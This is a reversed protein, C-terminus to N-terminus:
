TLTITHIDADYLKVATGTATAAKSLTLTTGSGPDATIYVGPALGTGKIRHGIRWTSINTVNQIINSGSTVDGTSPRHYRSWWQVVLNLTPSSSNQEVFSRPLAGLTVVGTSADINTIVGIVVNKASFTNAGNPNEFYGIADTAIIADLPKLMSVDALSFTATYGTHNITVSISGLYIQNVAQPIVRQVLPSDGTTFQITQGSCTYFKDVGTEDSAIVRESIFNNGQNSGSHGGGSGGADNVIQSSQFKYKYAEDTTPSLVLSGGYPAGLATKGDIDCNDFTLYKLGDIWIRYSPLSESSFFHCTEFKVHSFAAMFFDTYIGGTGGINFHCSRFIVADLASASSHGIYGIGGFAEAHVDNLRVGQGLSLPARVIHMCYGVNAGFVHPIQGNLSGYNLGDMAVMVQYFSGAYIFCNDSQSAGCIIGIKSASFCCKIWTVESTLGDAGGPSLAWAGIANSCGVDEFTIGATLAVGAQYYSSFTPYRNGSPVSTGGIPDIAICVHPSYPDDRVGPNVYTGPVCIQSETITFINQGLFQIGKIHCARGGQIGLIFNDGFSSRIATVALAGSSDSGRGDGYWRFTIQAFGSGNHAWATLPVTVKYGGAPTYMVVRNAICYDICEQLAASDDPLHLLDNALATAALGGLAGWWKSNAWQDVVVRFGRNDAAIFSSRPHATQYATDVASDFMYRPYSGDGDTNYGSAQVYNVGPPVYSGQLTAFPGVLYPLDGGAVQDYLQTGGANKVVTRVPGSSWIAASGLSDLVIPNLNATGGADSYTAILTSTGPMYTTVSGGALPAGSADFFQTRGANIQTLRSTM